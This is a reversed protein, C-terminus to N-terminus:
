RPADPFTMPAGDRVDVHVAWGASVGVGTFGASLAQAVTAYGSPIDAARGYLHQSNPAGGIAANTAPSRYGSVIRLPAGITARLRELRSILLPAVVVEGTRHDAFESQDFHASLNGV